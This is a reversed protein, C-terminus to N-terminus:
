NGKANKSHQIIESQTIIKSTVNGYKDINFFNGQYDEPNKLDSKAIHYSEYRLLENLKAEDHENAVGIWYIEEESNIIPIPKYLYNIEGKRNLKSSILDKAHTIIDTNFINLLVVSSQQNVYPSSSFYFLLKQIIPYVSFGTFDFILLASEGRHKLFISKLTDFIEKYDLQLSPKGLKLNAYKNEIEKILDFLAYYHNKKPLVKDPLKYSPKAAGRKASFEQSTPLLFSILTGQFFPLTLDKESYIVADKIENVDKSFDFVIKGKGSRAVVLGNYRRVIDVLYYLGRPIEQETQIEIDFPHRSSNLLFAYELIRTDKNQILHKSNLEDLVYNNQTNKIDADYNSALSNPIGQGFDLFSFEIYSENKFPYKKSTDEFFSLTEKTREETYGKPVTKKLYADLLKKAEDESCPIIKSEAEWYEERFQNIRQWIKKNNESRIIGQTTLKRKLSIAFYCEDVNLNNPELSHHIVNLFLENAVIRSLLLNENASLDTNQELVEFVQKALNLPKHIKNIVLDDISRIDGYGSTGIAQFPVVTIDDELNDQKFQKKKVQNDIITNIYTDINNFYEGLKNNGELLSLFSYIKWKGWLNILQNHKKFDSGYLPLHIKIKKNNLILHRFWGFLFTIEELAIWEIEDLHFHIVESPKANAAVEWYQKVINDLHIPTFKKGFNIQIM